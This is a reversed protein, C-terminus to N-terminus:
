FTEPTFNAPVHSEDKTSVDLGAKYYFTGTASVGDVWDETAGWGADTFYVKLYNLKECGRFMDFYCGDALTTAPLVPAATLKKCGKFMGYYCDEALTTVPLAPAATLSTCDEFMYAYCGDALTTALLVPAATLSTCGDFMYEYCDEALTEAPLAPVVTLSTCGSFMDCYCREALTTAPLTPAATLSTCYRFMGYYCDEALTTAPLAPAATLSTCGEFMVEYCGAALTTAPLAPAATLSTCGEFMYSYCDEALTIAPLEPASTLKDCNSFLGSFCYASLITTSACNKDILSMVNGSAKVKGSGGFEFYLFKFGDESFTGSTSNARIYMKSSDSLTTILTTSNDSNDIAITNWTRADSSWEISPVAGLVENVKIKVAVDGGDATFCLWPTAPAPPDPEPDDGGGGGGDCAAFSIIFCLALLIAFLKRLKMLVLEEQNFDYGGWATKDLYAGASSGSDPLPWSLM